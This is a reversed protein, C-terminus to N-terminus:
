AFSIGPRLLLQFIALLGVLGAAPVLLNPRARQEQSQLAAARWAAGQMWLLGSLIAILPVLFVELANRPERFPVSLMTSALAPLSAALAVFRMRAGATSSDCATAFNRLFAHVLWGGCIAMAIIAALAAVMRENASLGVARMATGFDNAPVFTGIVIQPLGLFFGCFAMWFMLLKATTSANPRARLLLLFLGGSVLDALVGTGQLLDALPNHGTWTHNNHFLVPHLGPVFAKPLVLFFEQFVFSLNFALTCTLVSAVSLRWDWPESSGRSTSM